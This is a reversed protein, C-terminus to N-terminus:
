CEQEGSPIGPSKTEQSDGRYRPEKGERVSQLIGLDQSRPKNVKMTKDNELRRDGLAFWDHYLRIPEREKACPERPTERKKLTRM